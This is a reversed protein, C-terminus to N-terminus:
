QKQRASFGSEILTKLTNYILDVQDKIISQDQSLQKVKSETNKHNLYYSQYLEYTYYYSNPQSENKIAYIISKDLLNTTDQLIAMSKLCQEAKQALKSLESDTEHTKNYSSSNYQLIKYNPTLEKYLIIALITSLINQKLAEKHIYIKEKQILIQYDYCKTFNSSSGVKTIESTKDVKTIELIKIVNFFCYFVSKIGRLSILDTDAASSIYKKIVGNENFIADKILDKINEQSELLKLFASFIKEYQPEATKDTRPLQLITASFKRYYNNFDLENGFLAKASSKLQSLNTSIVFATNEQNFLHKITELFDIAYSPRCRDLVM